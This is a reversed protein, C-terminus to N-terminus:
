FVLHLHAAAPGDYVMAKRGALRCPRPLMLLGVLMSTLMELAHQRGPCGRDGHGFVMYRDDENRWARYPLFDGPQDVAAPDFMAGIVMLKMSQGAKVRAPREGGAQFCAARPVDRVVIPFVPRFRLLELIVLRIRHRLGEDNWAKEGAEAVQQRLLLHWEEREILELMLHVGAQVAVPHSVWMLGVANRHISAETRDSLRSAFAQRVADKQVHVRQNLAAGAAEARCQVSATAVGGVVLHSAVHRLDLFLKKEAHEPMNTGLHGGALADGADGYCRKMARWVLPGLYDDVLDFRGASAGQRLSEVRERALEACTRGLEDAQLLMAELTARESRYHPGDQMGISFGGAVLNPAHATNSFTASRKFAAVVADRRAVIPLTNALLPWRRVAAAFVRLLRPQRMLFCWVAHLWGSGRGPSAARELAAETM